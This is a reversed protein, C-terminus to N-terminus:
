AAKRTPQRATTTKATTTKAATTKTASAKTATTKGTTKGEMAERNIFSEALRTLKKDTKGEEDLNQQLLQCADNIGLQTAWTRCTGYGAMEYHEVKQAAAILGADLTDADGGEKILSQGEAILGKVGKCPKREAKAGMCKFVQELRQVHGETQMRHEEFAKKLKADGAAKAMKPLAELIQHEADYLDQLEETLLDKLTAPV